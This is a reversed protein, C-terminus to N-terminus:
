RLERSIEMAELVRPDRFLAKPKIHVERALIMDVGLELSDFLLVKRLVQTDLIM